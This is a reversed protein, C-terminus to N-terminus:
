EYGSIYRNDPDGGDDDQSKAIVQKALPKLAALGKKTLFNQSVDLTELRPFKGAALATAGADGMRGKSLDLSVIQAAIKSSALGACIEDAVDSNGLGLHKVKPFAKADFIPQLHKPKIGNEQGLQVNLRELV